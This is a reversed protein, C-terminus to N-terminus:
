TTICFGKSHVHELAKGVGDVVDLWEDNTLKKQKAAKHITLSRDKEGHFQLVIKYPHNQLDVGFLLPLGHHDGLESMVTAEHKVEKRLNEEEGKNTRHFEKIAVLIGCYMGLYCQGFTGSGLFKGMKVINSANIEKVESVKEIAEKPFSEGVDM